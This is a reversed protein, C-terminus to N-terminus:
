KHYFHKEVIIKEEKQTNEEFDFLIQITYLLFAFLLCTLGIYFLRDDKNLISLNFTYKLSDDYINFWTNKLNFFIMEFSQLYIPTKPLNENDALQKLINADKIQLEQKAKTKMADFNVNFQKVDFKQQDNNM